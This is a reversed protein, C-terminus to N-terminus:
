AGSTGVGGAEFVVVSDSPAGSQGPGGTSPCGECDGAYELPGGPRSDFGTISTSKDFWAFQKKPWETARYRKEEQFTRNPCEVDELAADAAQAM